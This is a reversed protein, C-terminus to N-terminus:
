SAPQMGKAKLLGANRPDSILKIFSLAAESQKTQASVAAAYTTVNQIEAPLPGVLTVGKVPIIESAQQLVIDAEGSAVLDAAHGGRKLKANPRIKDAIGLREILKDVYIGSSGGSAPDIYAVAKAALLTRKFAEVSGIDPKPAGEKVGVGVGVTAVKTHSAAVLKGDKALTDIITPTIVAVDFAEGSEIRKKVAGATDKTAEVAHGTEKEFAPVMAQLVEMYAGVTLVRIEAASAEASFGAIGAVLLALCKWTM